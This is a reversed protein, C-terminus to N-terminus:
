PAVFYSANLRWIVSTTAPAVFTMATNAASGKIPIGFTYIYSIANGQVRADAPLSFTPTNILGTTTVLVPTAAVILLAAAFEFIELSCLYNFLGAGGAPITITVGTGAAATGTQFTTAAYGQGGVLVMGGAM